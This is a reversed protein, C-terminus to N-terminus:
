LLPGSGVDLVRLGFFARKDLLLDKLYKPGQHLRLWTLIAAHQPLYTKVKEHEQPAPTGCHTRLKGEYWARYNEIETKWFNLETKYKGMKKLLIRNIGASILNKM